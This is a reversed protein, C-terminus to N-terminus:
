SSALLAGLDKRYQMFQASSPIVRAASRIGGINISRVVPYPASLLAHLLSLDSASLQRYRQYYEVARLMGSANWTFNRHLIHSLDKMRVHLSSNEFDILHLKGQKDKILNPYNYDGHIFASAQQEATIAALLAPERLRSIVEECLPVFYGTNDYSGLLDKYESVDNDLDFYRTRSAPAEGAPFGEAAAHFRALARLGKRLDTAKGFDPQRGHVWNTLMYVTGRHTMVPSHATTPHVKPSRTFGREDLWAFIRAIYFVEEAQVDYGKLCYTGLPTRIRFVDKVRRIERIRMGYTEEIGTRLDTM